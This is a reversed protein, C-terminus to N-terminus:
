RSPEWLYNTYGALDHTIQVPPTAGDPAVRWLDACYDACSPVVDPVRQFLISSGDPSWVGCCSGYGDESTTLRTLDAGNPRVLYLDHDASSRPRDFLIWDGDPSWRASTESQGFGTIRRARGGSADAVYIASKGPEGRFAAFAVRAGDPSWSAPVGFFCCTLQMGPTSLRQPARAGDADVQYLSSAEPDHRDSRLFLILSGDPSYAIPTDHVGRPSTIRALDSGDAGATYVGFGSPDGDVWGDFAIRDGDSSWAGPILNLAPDQVPISTFMSGDPKMTMPVYRGADTVALAIRDGDPSWVECNCDRTASPLPTENSGDANAVFVHDDRDFLISGLRGSISPQADGSVGGVDSTAGDKTRSGM